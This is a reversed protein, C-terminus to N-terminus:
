NEERGKKLWIMNEAHLYIGLIFSGIKNEVFWTDMALLLLLILGIYWYLM